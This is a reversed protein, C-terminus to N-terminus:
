WGGSLEWHERVPKHTVPLEFMIWLSKGDFEADYVGPTMSTCGKHGEKCELKTHENNIITNMSYVLNKTKVGQFAGVLGPSIYKIDQTTTAVVEVKIAQKEKKAAFAASSILALMLVVLIRKM